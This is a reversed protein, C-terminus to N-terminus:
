RPDAPPEAAGQRRHNYSHLDFVVLRGHREILTELTLRVHRYFADYEALSHAVIEGSPRSRWVRLGWADEPELYIAQDRPRNLDVEFRSRFVIIRTPAISTWAATYPDEEYFREPEGIALLDAVEARVASGDHIATAVLPGDGFQLEWIPGDM